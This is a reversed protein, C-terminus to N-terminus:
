QGEECSTAAAAARARRESTTLVENVGDSLGELWDFEEDRSEQIPPHGLSTSLEDLLAVDAITFEDPNSGRPFRDDYVDFGQNLGYHADLPYAGVFAGTAYGAKHLLTALTPVVEPFPPM